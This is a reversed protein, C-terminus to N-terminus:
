RKGNAGAGAHGGEGGVQRNLLFVYNGRCHGSLCVIKGGRNYEGCGYRAGKSWYTLDFRACFNRLEGKSVGYQSANATSLAGTAGAIMFASLAALMFRSSTAGASKISNTM